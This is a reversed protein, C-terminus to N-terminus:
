LPFLCLLYYVMFLQYKLNIKLMYDNSPHHLRNEPTLFFPLKTSMRKNNVLIMCIFMKVPSSKMNHLFVM